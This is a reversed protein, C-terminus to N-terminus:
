AKRARRASPKRRVRPGAPPAGGRSASPVAATTPYALWYPDGVRRGVDRGAGVLAEVLEARRAVFRDGIPFSLSFALPPEGGPMGVSAGVAGFGPLTHNAAEVWGKARVEALDRLLEEVELTLGAPAHRMVPPHAALVASDDWRALLARGIATCFAPLRYGVDFVMRVPYSGQRVRLVVVDTDDLAGIYGTLGFREVLARLQDEVLDLLRVHRKYLSGLQFALPGPRYARSDPHQDLLGAEVMEKCLRTVTSKPLALRRAVETVRLEPGDGSFCGLIDMGKGLSSM